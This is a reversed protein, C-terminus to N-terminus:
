ILDYQVGFTYIRGPMPYDLTDQFDENFFNKAGATVLVGDSLRRRLNIDTVIYAPVKRLNPADDYREGVHNFIIGASNDYADCYEVGANYKTRPRYPLYNRTKGDTAYLGTYNVFCKTDSSLHYTLGVEYGSIYASSVNQAEWTMWVGSVDVWQILDRVSSSYCSGRLELGGNLKTSFGMETSKSSEPKLSTSGRSIIGYIPDEYFAYLDNLTPARYAESYSLWVSSSENPRYLLGARPSATDGYISHEDFRASLFASLGSPFFHQEQVFVAKNTVGHDGTLASRARDDRYEAGINFLDSGSLKLDNQLEYQSSYSYYKDYPEAPPDASFKQELVGYSSNLSVSWIDSVKTRTTLRFHRDNDEQRTTPTPFTLSGPVGKKSDNVDFGMGLDFWGGFNQSIDGSLKESLYDSNERMEESTAPMFGPSFTKGASFTYNLADTVGSATFRIDNGGRESIGSSLVLKFPRDVAAKKTIINIVGGVADAGYLASAPGRVIEVKEINDVPLAGLDYGGLLPSNIRQGDILILTQQYTSGRISGSVQSGLYGTTRSYTGYTYNLVDGINKAGLIEIERSTIITISAPVMSILQPMRSATVVVEEGRFTPAEEAQSIYSLSLVACLMFMGSLYPNKVM